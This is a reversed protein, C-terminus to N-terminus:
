RAERRAPIGVRVLDGAVSQSGYLMAEICAVARDTAHGPDYFMEEAVRRRVPSLRARDRLAVTATRELEDPTRVVTAASRLLRVKEASIRAAEILEPVDYVILPRDLVLYEFGVSSHDTVMLDAAALWPSSDATDVLRVPAGRAIAGFRARLYHRSACPLFGRECSM